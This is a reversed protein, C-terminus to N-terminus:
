AESHYVTLTGEDPCHDHGHRHDHDHSHDHHNWTDIM